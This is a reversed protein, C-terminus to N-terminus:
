FSGCAPAMAHKLVIFGYSHHPLRVGKRLTRRHLKRPTLSPLSFNAGLQLTKGNLKVQRFFLFFLYLGSM